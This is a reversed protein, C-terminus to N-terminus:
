SEPIYESGEICARSAEDLADANGPCGDSVKDRLRRSRGHRGGWVTRLTAEPEM